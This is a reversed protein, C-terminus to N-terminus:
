WFVIILVTSLKRVSLYTPPPSSYKLMPDWSDFFFFFFFFLALLSANTKNQKNLRINANHFKDENAAKLDLLEDNRSREKYM